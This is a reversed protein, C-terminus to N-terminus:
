AAGAAVGREAGAGAGPRRGRGCGDAIADPAEDGFLLREWDRAGHLIHIIDVADATLRYVLKM